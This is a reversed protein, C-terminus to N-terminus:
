VLEEQGTSVMSATCNYVSGATVSVCCSSVNRWLRRWCLSHASCLWSLSFAFSFGAIIHVNEGWCKGGFCPVAAMYFVIDVLVEWVGPLGLHTGWSWKLCSQTKKSASKNRSVSLLTWKQFGSPPGDKIAQPLLVPSHFSRIASSPAHRSAPVKWTDPLWCM